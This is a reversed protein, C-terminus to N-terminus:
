HFILICDLGVFPTGDDLLGKIQLPIEVGSPEENLEFAEVMAETKFKMRLDSLGDRGSAHCDCLEGEFPASEDKLKLNTPALAGGVGDARRLEISSTRVHTIDFYDTGLLAMWVAADTDTRIGNPCARPMVDLHLVEVCTGEECVAHEFMWRVFRRGESNLPATVTLLTGPYYARDFSSFGDSDINLDLPTVEIFTDGM